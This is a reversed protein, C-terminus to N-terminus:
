HFHPATSPDVDMNVVSNDETDLVKGDAPVVDIVTEAMNDLPTIDSIVDKPTAENSDLM